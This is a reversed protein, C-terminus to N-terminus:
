RQYCRQKGRIKSFEYGSIWGFQRIGDNKELIEKGLDKYLHYTNVLIGPTKTNEIDTSDVTRIFARTADPFFVPLPIEGNKTKFKKITRKPIV